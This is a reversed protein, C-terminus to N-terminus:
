SKQDEQDDDHEIELRIIHPGALHFTSGKKEITLVGQASAMAKKADAILKSTAAKIVFEERDTQVIRLKYTM